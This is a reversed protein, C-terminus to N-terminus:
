EADESADALADDVAEMIAESTVTAGSVVDYEVDARNKEIIAAPVDEIAPDSAGETESHETVEVNSIEGEEVTVEVTLPGNHGEATGEYTGDTYVTDLKGIGLANETAAMIADSTYTVGSIVDVQTSQKEVIEGPINEIAPDSAGETEKHELVTVETIVNEAVTVEVEVPGNHGEAVGTYSGDEIDFTMAEIEKEVEEEAEETDDADDDSDGLANNVAAIIGESTSTAGSVVDVATSDSDVIAAVVEEFAPDSVGESESHDLIALDIIEGAEVTVEVEIPGGYGDASGTYMGDELEDGAVTETPASDNQSFSFNDTFLFVTALMVFFAALIYKITLATKRGM